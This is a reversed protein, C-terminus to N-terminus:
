NSRGDPFPAIASVPVSSSLYKAAREVAEQPTAGFFSKAERTHSAPVQIRCRASWPESGWILEQVRLINEETGVQFIYREEKILNAM